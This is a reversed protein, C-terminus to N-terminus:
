GAAPRVRAWFGLLGLAAVASSALFAAEAGWAAWIGGFVAGAPIATFGIIMHYWGFATGRERPDALDRVLAREAGESMGFHLGLLLGGALLLGPSTAAALGALALLYLSWGTLIIPRRGSRDARRGAWESVLAKVAHVGAWLLLLAVTSLGLEHGRLLLFTEPIRGLAFLGLVV